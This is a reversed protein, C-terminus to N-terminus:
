AIRPNQGANWADVVPRFAAIHEPTTGCCGGVMRSGAALLEPLRAAMAAPTHPYVWCSSSRTPTGANPRVFLPLSTNARYCHLIAVIEDMGMDRGCNVGLAAIRIQNACAATFSASEELIRILLNKHVPLASYSLSLLVPLGHPSGILQCVKEAAWLGAFSSWTELLLADTRHL